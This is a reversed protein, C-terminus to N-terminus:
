GNVCFVKCDRKPHPQPLQIPSVPRPYLREIPQHLKRPRGPLRKPVAAGRLRPGGLGDQAPSLFRQSGKGGLRGLLKVGIRYLGVMLRQWANAYQQMM